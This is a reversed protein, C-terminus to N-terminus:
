EYGKIGQSFQESFYHLILEYLFDCMYHLLNWGITNVTMEPQNMKMQMFGKCSSLADAYEEMGFAPNEIIGKATQKKYAEVCQQKDNIFKFFQFTQYIKPEMNLVVRLQGSRALKRVNKPNELNYKKVNKRLTFNTDYYKNMINALKDIFPGLYGETYYGANVGSESYLQLYWESNKYDTSAGDSLHYMRGELDQRGVNRNSTYQDINAWLVYFLKSAEIQESGYKIITKDNIPDGMYGKGYILEKAVRWMRNHLYDYIDKYTISNLEYNKYQYTEAILTKSIESNHHENLFDAFSSIKKM